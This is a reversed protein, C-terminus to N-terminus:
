FIGKGKKTNGESVVGVLHKEYAHLVIVPPLSQEDISDEGTEVEEVPVTAADEWNQQEEEKVSHTDHDPHCYLCRGNMAVGPTTVPNLKRRGGTETVEYLQANCTVCLGHDFRMKVISEDQSEEAKRITGRGAARTNATQM